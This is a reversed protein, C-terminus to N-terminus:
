EAFTSNTIIGDVGLGKLWEFDKREDVTFPFIKYGANHSQTVFREDVFTYVPHISYAQLKSHKIYSWPDILRNALLVGIKLKPELEQITLLAEHDFSSVITNEEFGFRRILSVIKEEIGQYFIPINKIEVNILVDRHCVAFVEELTPLRTEHFDMSFWSGADRHKLSALTQDIILGTGDTTRDVREDHCVVLQEDRTLQVDLEIARCGQQLALEFAPLTNEPAELSAGRHAFIITMISRRM